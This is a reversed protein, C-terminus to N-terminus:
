AANGATAAFDAEWDRLAHRIATGGAGALRYNVAQPTIGLRPAIDTLTPNDPALHLAMAEAQERSWRSSREDLLDVVIRHLTTVGEGDITLRRTRPMRDLAHGSTEFAAGHADSLDATGLSDVRGIGIAARTALGHDAARLAATLLLVARLALGPEAVVMQWGDGRFRTFRPDPSPPEWGTLERATDALLDIARELAAPEARTSGILDGTLVAVTGPKADPM